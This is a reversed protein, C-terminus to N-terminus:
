LPSQLFSNTLMYIENLDTTDIWNIKIGRKEMRRFFTMQRKSFKNIANNLMEKMTDYDIKKSLYQGIFKYELGFYALRTFNLGSALLSEVEEIMGEELRENLREKIKSLIIPRDIRIGMVLSKALINNGKQKMDINSKDSIIEISRILRRKSIHYDENYAESDLLFLENKLQLLSKKELKVRLNINPKTKPMKYDLLISEIYLGTGGCLIPTKNRFHINTLAANCEEKFKFVSYDQHPELINILHYPIVNNNIHYENLDKGTGIDMGKYIQRSDASIIEGSYKSALNVALKTKGSATPGLIVILKNM